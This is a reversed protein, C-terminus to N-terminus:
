DTVELDLDMRGQDPRQVNELDATEYLEVDFFMPSITLLTSAPAGLTWEILGDAAPGVLAGAFVALETATKDKRDRAVCAFTFGTLNFPITQAEDAFIPTRFRIRTGTKVVLVVPVIAM